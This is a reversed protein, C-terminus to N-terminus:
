RRSLNVIVDFLPESLKTASNHSATGSVHIGLARASRYLPSGSQGGFTDITYQLYQPTENDIMGSASWQTGYPKDAPYGTITAQQGLSSSISTSKTMGLWGVTSGIPEALKIVAWDRGSKINYYKDTWIERAQVTGWPNLSGNRAPSFAFNRVIGDDFLNHVCHGATVLTDASALWASCVYGILVGSDYTAQGIARYPFARTNQIQGRDDPGIITRADFQSGPSPSTESLGSPNVLGSSDLPHDVDAAGSAVKWGIPAVMDNEVPAALAPSAATYSLFSLCLLALTAAGIVIKRMYFEQKLRDSFIRM